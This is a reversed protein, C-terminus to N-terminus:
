VITLPRFGSTIVEFRFHFYKQMFNASIPLLRYILGTEHTFHQLVRSGVDFIHLFSM